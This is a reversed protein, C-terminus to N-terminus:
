DLVEAGAGMYGRNVAPNFKIASKVEKNLMFFEKSKDFAEDIRKPEIGHNTVIVFGIQRFTNVIKKPFDTDQM